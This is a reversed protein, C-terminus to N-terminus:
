VLNLWLYLLLTIASIFILGPLDDLLDKVPTTAVDLLDLLIQFVLWLSSTLISQQVLELFEVTLGFLLGRVVLLLSSFFYIMTFLQHRSVFHKALYFM